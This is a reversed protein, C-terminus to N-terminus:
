NTPETDETKEDKTLTKNLKRLRTNTNALQLIIVLLMLAIAKDYRDIYYQYCGMILATLAVLSKFKRM